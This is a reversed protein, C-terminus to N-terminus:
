FSHNSNMFCIRPLTILLKTILEDYDVAGCKMIAADHHM